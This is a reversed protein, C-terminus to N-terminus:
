VVFVCSAIHKRRKRIGLKRNKIKRRLLVGILKGDLGMELKRLLENILSEADAGVLLLAADHDTGLEHLVLWQLLVGSKQLLVVSGVTCAKEKVPALNGEPVRRIAHPDGPSAGGLATVGGLQGPFLSCLSDPLQKVQSSIHGLTLDVLSNVILALHKCIVKNVEAPLKGLLCNLGTEQRQGRLVVACVVPMRLRFTLQMQSQLIGFLHLQEDPLKLIKCHCPFLIGRQDFGPSIIGSLSHAAKGIKSQFRHAKFRGFCYGMVTLEKDGIVLPILHQACSM